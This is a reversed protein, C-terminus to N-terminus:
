RELKPKWERGLKQAEAIQTPTMKAAVHDRLSAAKNDTGAKSMSFRSAALSLWKYAQVYDQPLGQGNHYLAGLLLQATADGQDAAKRCWKAAEAYDQRLGQGKIYMDGLQGQARAQGQEAAKRCWKVAEAYDQPVGLGTAYMQGLQSQANVNGGDAAKAYWRTTEACDEPVGQGRVYMSGLNYQASADGQDAAKRYWKAAEAYSQPVGHGNDYMIGLNYRAAAFGQEAAKRFWKLAEAYSQPVGKGKAYMMGLNFQADADGEDALRANRLRVAATIREEIQKAERQAIAEFAKARGEDRKLNPSALIRKLESLDAPTTRSPIQSLDVGTIPLPAPGVGEQYNWLFVSGTKLWEVRVELSERLIEREIAALIMEKPHPLVNVDYFYGPKTTAKAMFDAYDSVIGDDSMDQKGARTIAENLTITVEAASSCHWIANAFAALVPNTFQLEPASEPYMMSLAQATQANKYVNSENYLKPGIFNSLLTKILGGKMDWLRVLVGVQAISVYVVERSDLEITAGCGATESSRLLKPM